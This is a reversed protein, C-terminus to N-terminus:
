TLSSSQENQPAVPPLSLERQLAPWSHDPDDHDHDEMGDLSQYSARKWGLGTHKGFCLYLTVAGGLYLALFLLGSLELQAVLCWNIFIGACPLYPVLPTQFFGDENTTTDHHQRVISGGFSSSKPCQMTLSGLVGLTALLAVCTLWPGWAGDHHVLLLGTILSLLNYLVLHHEVLQPKTAHCSSECRLLILCSNTMSFALLIGVSIGDDLYNFPVLTAVVIMVGGAIATGWLLNGREDVQAFIPPLLGDQAMAFQLRPQAMLSILVVVPLTLVEGAACIQAAWTIGRDGFAVPFGSTESIQDFPMMGTLAVSALMYLSTVIFLTWLVARPMDRHPHLAEGAICCVEDYGLYGFFSSTAGRWIGSWGYPAFSSTGDLATDSTTSHVTTNSSQFLAFGGLIMFVVLLVKTLTFFNTVQKSEHIGALLLAVSGSSVVGAMLNVGYPELWVSADTWGWQERLWVVLKDGWSRAVAAGSVGYELTLCAAAIVAAVEGLCIYSYVYTSGASPIRGSLEAYCVGSCAAAIGAIAFSLWTAPGAYNHAIYGCLVFIGSGITGGVGVSVLDWVTLHRQVSTSTSNSSQQEIERQVVWLPKKRRWPPIPTAFPAHRQRLYPGDLSSSPM